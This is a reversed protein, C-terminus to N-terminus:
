GSNKALKIRDALLSKELRLHLLETQLDKVITHVATLISEGIHTDKKSVLYEFIGAICGECIEIKNLLEDEEEVLREYVAILEVM